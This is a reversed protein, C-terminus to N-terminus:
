NTRIFHKVKFAKLFTERLYNHNKELDFPFFYRSYQMTDLLKKRYRCLMRSVYIETWTILM